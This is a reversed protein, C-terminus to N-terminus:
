KESTFIRVKAPVITDYGDSSRLRYGVQLVEAIKFEDEPNDVKKTKPNDAIGETTRYDDGINPSFFEVGCEDFADELLRKVQSLYESPSTEVQIFDDVTQDVRIFRLLFKRFVEADYNSKFRRIEADKEDLAKQLAMFTDIMNDIKSTSESTRGAIHHISKSLENSLAGVNRGVSDLYKGWEEPM